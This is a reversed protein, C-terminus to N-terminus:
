FIRLVKSPHTRRLAQIFSFKRLHFNSQLSKVKLSNRKQQFNFNFSPSRCSNCILYFTSPHLFLIVWGTVIVGVLWFVDIVIWENRSGLSRRGLNVNVRGAPLFTQYSFVRPLPPPTQNTPSRHSDDMNFGAPSACVTPENAQEAFCVSEGRERSRDREAANWRESRGPEGPSKINPWAPKINPPCIRPFGCKLISKRGNASPSGASLRTIFEPRSPDIGREPIRGPPKAIGEARQGFDVSTVHYNVRDTPITSIPIYQEEIKNISWRATCVWKVVLCDERINISRLEDSVSHCNPHFSQQTRQLIMTILIKRDKCIAKITHNM